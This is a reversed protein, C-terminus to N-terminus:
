LFPLESLPGFLPRKAPAPAPVAGSDPTTYVKSLDAPLRTLGAATGQYSMFDEGSMPQAVHYASAVQLYEAYQLQGDSGSYDRMVRSSLEGDVLVDTPNGPAQLSDWQAQTLPAAQWQARMGNFEDLNLMNDDSNGGTYYYGAPLDTASVQEQTVGIGGTPAGAPAAPVGGTGAVPAAPTVPPATPPPPPVPPEGPPAPPAPPPPLPGPPPPTTPLALLKKPDLAWSGDAQQVLVKDSIMKNIGADQLIGSADGYHDLGKQAVVGGFLQSGGGVWGVKEGSLAQTYEQSTLGEDPVPNGDNVGAYKTDWETPHLLSPPTTGPGPPTGPPGPPPGPPAPPATNHFFNKLLDASIAAATGGGLASKSVKDSAQDWLTGFAEKLLAAPDVTVGLQSLSDKFAGPVESLVLKGVRATYTAATDTQLPIFSEMGAVSDGDTMRQTLRSFVHDIVAGPLNSVDVGFPSGKRVEMAQKFADVTGTIGNVIPAVFSKADSIANIYPQLQGGVDTLAKAMAAEGPLKVWTTGPDSGAPAAASTLKQATLGQAGPAAGIVPVADQALLSSALPKNGGLNVDGTLQVMQTDLMAAKAVKLVGIQAKLGWDPNNPQRAQEAQLTQLKTDIADKVGSGYRVYTIGVRRAGSIGVSTGDAGFQVTPGGTAPVGRLWVEQKGVSQGAANTIDKSLRYDRRLLQTSPAVTGKVGDAFQAGASASVQTLVRYTDTRTTQGQADKAGAWSMSAWPHAYAGAGVWSDGAYSSGQSGGGFHGGVTGSAGLSWGYEIGSKYTVPETAALVKSGINVPAGAPGSWNVDWRVKGGSVPTATATGAGPGSGIAVPNMGVATAGAPANPTGAAVMTIPQVLDPGNEFVGAAAGTFNM